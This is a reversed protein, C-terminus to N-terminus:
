KQKKGDLLKRKHGKHAESMKLRTKISLPIGKHSESMKRRSAESFRFGKHADGIKQKTIESHRKHTKGGSDLNYGFQPNTSHFYEIWAGERVDLMNELVEELVRFEFSNLGYKSFANQLYSNEHKGSNLLSFHSSKRNQVNVSQGIYWKKCETNLIGYIGVM